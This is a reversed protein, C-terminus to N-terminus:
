SQERKKRALGTGRSTLEVPYKKGQITISAENEPSISLSLGGDYDVPVYEKQPIGSVHNKFFTSITDYHSVNWIV